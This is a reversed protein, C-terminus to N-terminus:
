KNLYEIFDEENYCVVGGPLRYKKAHRSVRLWTTRFYNCRRSLHAAVEDPVSYVKSDGDASLIVHKM